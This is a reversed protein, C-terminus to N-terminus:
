ESLFKARSPDRSTNLMMYYSSPFSSIRSILLYCKESSPEVLSVPPQPPLSLLCRAPGSQLGPHHPPRM